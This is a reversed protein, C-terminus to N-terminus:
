IEQRSALAPIIRQGVQASAEDLPDLAFPDSTAVVLSGNERRIPLVSDRYIIRQPFSKLLSLDIQAEDSLDLFPMGTERGIVQLAEGETVMGQRIVWDMLSEGPAVSRRAQELQDRNLLGHRVLIEGVEM